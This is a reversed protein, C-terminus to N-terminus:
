YKTWLTTIKEHFFNVLSACWHVTQENPTLPERMHERRGVKGEEGAEGGCDLLIQSFYAVPQGDGSM